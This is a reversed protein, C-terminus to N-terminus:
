GTLWDRVAARMADLIRREAAATVAGNDVRTLRGADVGVPALCSLFATGHYHTRKVRWADSEPIWLQRTLPWLVLPGFESSLVVGGDPRALEARHATLRADVADLLRELAERENLLTQIRARVGAREAQVASWLDLACCAEAQIARRDLDVSTRMPSALDASSARWRQGDRILSVTGTIGIGHVVWPESLSVLAARDDTLQVACLGYKTSLEM